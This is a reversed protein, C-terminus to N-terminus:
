AAKAQGHKALVDAVDGPKWSVDCAWTGFGGHANVARVWEALFQRKTETQQNNQGKVELILNTGCKVKILFDPRYLNRRGNVLLPEGGGSYHRALWRYFCHHTGGPHM